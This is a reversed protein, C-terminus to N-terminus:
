APMVRSAGTSVFNIGKKKMVPRLDVEIDKRKRWNVAVWPNSPVFQYIAGKSVVTIKDEKRLKEHVEYAAIAGGLGAGLVVIHAM